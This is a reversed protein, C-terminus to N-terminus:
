SLYATQVQQLTSRRAERLLEVAHTPKLLHALLIVPAVPEEKQEVQQVKEIPLSERLLTGAWRRQWMWREEELQLANVVHRGEQKMVTAVKM